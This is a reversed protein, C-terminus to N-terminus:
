ENNGAEWSEYEKWKHLAWAVREIDQKTWLFNGAPSKAPPQFKDQWIAKSILDPKLNLIQGVQRTSFFRTM